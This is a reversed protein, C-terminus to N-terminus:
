YPAKEHTGAYTVEVLRIEKDKVIWVAVYTPQGKKLHCHYKNKGLKGYNPWQGRAPGNLEIERMLFALSKKVRAPLKSIKKGVKKSVTVTWQM